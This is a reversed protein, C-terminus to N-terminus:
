FFHPCITVYNNEYIEIKDSLIQYLIDLNKYNKKNKSESFFEPDHMLNM